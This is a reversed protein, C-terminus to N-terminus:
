EQQHRAEGTTTSFFGPKRHLATLAEVFVQISATKALVHRKPKRQCLIGFQHDLNSTQPLSKRSGATSHPSM